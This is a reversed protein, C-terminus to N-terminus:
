EDLVDDQYGRETESAQIIFIVVCLEDSIPADVTVIVGEMNDNSYLWILV